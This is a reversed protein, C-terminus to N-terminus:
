GTHVLLTDTTTNYTTDVTIDFPIHANIAGGQIHLDATLGAKFHGETTALGLDADLSVNPGLFLSKDIAFATGAGWISQNQALFEKEAENHNFDMGIHEPASGPTEDPDGSGREQAYATATFDFDVDKGTPLLLQVEETASGPQGTTTLVNDTTLTVDKPVEGFAIRDIFESGDADTATATVKLRVLNVPDGAHADLVEFTVVPVDAVPIVHINVTASDQGGHGDSVSYQLTADVSKADTNAGAYDKDPTY